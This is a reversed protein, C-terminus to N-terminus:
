RWEKWKAIRSLEVLDNSIVVIFYHRCMASVVVGM